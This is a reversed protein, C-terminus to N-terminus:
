SKFKTIAEKLETVNRILEQAMTSLKEIAGVQEEVASTVEESSAASEESISALSNVNNEDNKVLAENETIRTKLKMAASSVNSSAQAILNLRGLADNITASGSQVNAGVENMADVAEKTREVAGGVLETVQDVSKRTEEALKRVEEAVVAFGRGADGARAAEIAANLALLSVQDAIEKIAGVINSIQSASENLKVASTGAKTAVAQIDQLKTIANNGAKRAKEIEQRANEAEKRVDDANALILTNNSYTQKTAAAIDAVSKAQTQVGSSIQQISQSVQSSSASLEQASSGLMEASETVQATATSVKGILGRINQSMTAVARTLEGVEDGGKKDGDNFQVTLDGDSMKKAAKTSRSIGNSISRFFFFSAIVGAAAAAGAIALVQDQINNMMQTEQPNLVYCLFGMSYPYWSPAAVDAVIRPQGNLSYQATQATSNAVSSARASAPLSEITWGSGLETPTLTMGIRNPQEVDAWITLGNSDSTHILPSIIGINTNEPTLLVSQFAYYWDYVLICSYPNGDEGVFNQAYIQIVPEPEKSINDLFPMSYYIMATSGEKYPYADGAAIQKYWSTNSVNFGTALWTGNWKQSQSVAVIQGNSDIVAEAIIRTSSSQLSTLDSSMDQFTTDQKVLNTSLVIFNGQNRLEQFFTNETSTAVYKLNANIQGQLNNSYTVESYFVGILLPVIAIIVGIIVLKTKLGLKVM